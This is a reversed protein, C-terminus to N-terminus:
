EVVNVLYHLVLGGAVENIRPLAFRVSAGRLFYCNYAIYLVHLAVNLCKQTFM